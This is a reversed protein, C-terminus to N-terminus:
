IAVFVLEADDRHKHARQTLRFFLLVPLQEAFVQCVRGVEEDDRRVEAVPTLQGGRGGALFFLITIFVIRTSGRHQRQHGVDTDQTFTVSEAVHVVVLRLPLDVPRNLMKILHYSRQM